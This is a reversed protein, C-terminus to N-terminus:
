SSSRREGMAGALAHAFADADQFREEPDKAMALQIFADSGPPLGPKRHSPQPIPSKAHAVMMAHLNKEDYPREGTLMEFVMVGLSYLDSRLDAKRGLVAMEPALYAPTGVTVSPLTIPPAGEEFVPESLKALGFDLVKVFPARAGPESGCLFINEPKLDRHLVGAQHAERLCGCIQRVIGLTIEPSMAGERELRVRLSEGDLLEMAIFLAGDEAAGFDYFVISHPSRLRTVAEVERRFRKIATKHSLLSKHLVKLAVRRKMSIQEAVYVRAMQGEGILSDVLFRGALTTGIRRDHGTM